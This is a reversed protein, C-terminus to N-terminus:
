EDIHKSVIENIKEFFIFNDCKEQTIKLRTISPTLIEINWSGDSCEEIKLGQYDGFIINACEFVEIKKNM